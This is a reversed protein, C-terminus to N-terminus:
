ESPDGVQGVFLVLGTGRDRLVFVFPRDFRLRVADPLASVAEVEAVTAAEARTGWEDVSVRAVQFLDGVALDGADGDSMRGFDARRADFMRGLGLASLGSRLHHLQARIEFRPATLQVQHEELAETWRDLDGSSIARPSLPAGNVSRVLLLSFRGETYPLEVVHIGDVRAYPLEAELWMLPVVVSRGDVRHFPGDQTAYDAFPTAWRGSFRVRQVVLLRTEESLAPQLASRGGEGVWRSVANRASASDSRFGVSVVGAALRDELASEYSATPALADDVFVRGAVSVPASTEDSWPRLIAGAARVAGEASGDESVVELLEHRTTGEAGVMLMTLAAHTGLPSYVLNPEGSREALEAFMEFGAVNNARVFSRTQSPSPPPGLDSGCECGTALLLVAVATARVSM